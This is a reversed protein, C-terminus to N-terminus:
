YRRGERRARLASFRSGQFPGPLACRFYGLAGREHECSRFAARPLVGWLIEERKESNQSTRLGLVKKPSRVLWFPSFLSASLEAAVCRTGM